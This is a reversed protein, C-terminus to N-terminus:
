NGELAALRAELADIQAQQRQVVNVLHPVVRDYQVGEPVLAGSEDRGFYVLRPDVSAVEEAIFGYYSWESNDGQAVSRFWVPRLSFVADAHGNDLTEVDTKYRISSTSRYLERNVGFYINAANATTQAYSGDSDLVGTARLDGTLTLTGSMTDSTDGRLFRADAETETYYRGDLNVSGLATVHGSDDLTVDQIVTGNSNNISAQSSTDAHAVTITNGVDDYTVTISTGAVLAGAIVDEIYEELGTIKSTGVDNVKADTVALDNIKSTTVASDAISGSGVQSWKLGSAEGSAATLVHDNTGVALREFTSSGHSVLDGKATWKAALENAEDADLATFVPFVPVGSSHSVASTGDQGRNSDSAINITTDSSGARTVLVKEESATGPSLVVFFPDSGYPWGTAAAVTFSTTGSAAIASTTTTAAAAGTYARRTKAM